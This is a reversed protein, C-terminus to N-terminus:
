EQLLPFIGTGICVSSLDVRVGWECAGVVQESSKRAPSGLSPQHQYSGNLIRLNTRNPLPKVRAIHILSVLRELAPGAAPVRTWEDPVAIRWAM